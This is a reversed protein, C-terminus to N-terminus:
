FPVTIKVVDVIRQILWKVRGAKQRLGRTAIDVTKFIEAGSETGAEINALTGGIAEDNLVALMANGIEQVKPSGERIAQGLDRELATLEEIAAGAKRVTEDASKLLTKAGQDLNTILTHLAKLDATLQQAAARADKVLGTTEQAAIAAQKSAEVAHSSAAQAAAAIEPMAKAVAGSATRVSGSIALIQSPLCNGNGHRKGQADTWTCDLLTASATDIRKATPWLYFGLGAFSVAATAIATGAAIAAVLAASILRERNM